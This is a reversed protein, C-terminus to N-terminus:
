ISRVILASRMSSAPLAGSCDECCDGWGSFWSTYQNHSTSNTSKIILAAFAIRLGGASVISLVHQLTIYDWFDPLLTKFVIGIFGLAFPTSFLSALLPGRKKRSRERKVCVRVCQGRKFLTFRYIYGGNLIVATSIVSIIDDYVPGVITYLNCKDFRGRKGVWYVVWVLRVWHPPSRPCGGGAEGIAASRERKAAARVVCLVRRGRVRRTM